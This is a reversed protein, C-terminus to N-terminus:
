KGSLILYLKKLLSQSKVDEKPSGDRHFIEPYYYQNASVSGDCGICEEPSIFGGNAGCKECGTGRNM